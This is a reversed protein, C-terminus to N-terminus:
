ALLAISVAVIVLAPAPKLDSVSAQASVVVACPRRISVARPTRKPRSGLWSILAAVSGKRLRLFPRRRM